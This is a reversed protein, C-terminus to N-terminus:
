NMKTWDAGNSSRHAWGDEDVAFLLPSDGESSGVTIARVKPPQSAAKLLVWDGPEDSVARRWVGGAADAAVFFLSLDMEYGAAVDVAGGEIAGFTDMQVGENSQSKTALIQGNADVGIIWRVALPTQGAAVARLSVKSFTKWPGWNAYADSSVRQRRYLRSSGALYVETQDVQPSGFATIDHAGNSNPMTMSMWPSWVAGSAGQVDLHVRRAQLEGNALAFVELHHNSLNTAAVRQPNLLPDFCSWEKWTNGSLETPWTVLAVNLNPQTTFVVAPRFYYLDSAAIDSAADFQYPPNDGTSSLCTPTL